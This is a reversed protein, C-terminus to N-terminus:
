SRASDVAEKDLRVKRMIELLEGTNDSEIAQRIKELSATFRKIENTLHKKNELFLETWLNENIKAVRTVDEFSGGTYNKHKLLLPTDCMATAIVHPLQSTYAIIKDHEDATTHIVVSCGLAFAFKEVLLIQKAGANASPTIIFSAGAFMDKDSNIFGSVERGAMPHGGIYTFPANLKGCLNMLPTKIGVTDTLVCGKKFNDANREVFALSENPYVCLIAIDSEDLPNQPAADIIGQEQAFNLVASDREIAYLKKVVPRLARAVSGGILGLGIVTVTKDQM